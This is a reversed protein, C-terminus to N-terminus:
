VHSADESYFTDLGSVEGGKRSPFAVQFFYITLEFVLQRSSGQM